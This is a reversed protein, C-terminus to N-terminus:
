QLPNGRVLDKHDTRPLLCPTRREGGRAAAAFEVVVVAVSGVVVAALEAVRGVVAEVVAVVETHIETVVMEVAVAKEVVVMEVAVVVVTDVAGVVELEIPIRSSLPSSSCLKRTCLLSLSFLVISTSLSQHSSSANRDSWVAM